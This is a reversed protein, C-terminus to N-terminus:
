HKSIAEEQCEVIDTIKPWKQSSVKPIILKHTGSLWPQLNDTNSKQSYHNEAM